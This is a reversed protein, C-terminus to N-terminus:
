GIFLTQFPAPRRMSSHSTPMRSPRCISHWNTGVSSLIASTLARDAAPRGFISTVENVEGV